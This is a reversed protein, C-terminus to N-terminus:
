LRKKTIEKKIAIKNTLDYDYNKYNVPDGYVRRIFSAKASGKVMKKKLTKIVRVKFIRDEIKVVDEVSIKFERDLDVKYGQTIGKFNISIGIRSPIDISSAWITDIDKAIASKVRKNNKLEFSTIESKGLDSILINGASLRDDPCIDINTRKSNANESVILRFSKPKELIISEKFIHNCDNCELLFENIENTKSSVTKSKLIKIDESGSCVPCEM